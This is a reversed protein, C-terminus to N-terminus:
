MVIKGAVPELVDSSAGTSNLRVSDGGSGGNGGTKLGNEILDYVADFEPPLVCPIGHFCYRSEASMVVTDGSRVLIPTPPIHRSAGGILFVICVYMCVYMYIYYIENARMFNCVHM